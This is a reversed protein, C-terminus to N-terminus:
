SYQVQDIGSTTRWTAILAVAATLAVGLVQVSALGTVTAPQVVLIATATVACGLWVIAPMVRRAKAIDLLVTLQVLAALSGTLSFLVISATLQPAYAPGVIVGLAPAGVFAVGVACLAACGAYLWLVHRRAPGGADSEVALDPLLVTGAFQPLWYTIRMVIAGAAFLGADAISLSHRSLIVGLGLLTLVGAFSASASLLHRLLFPERSRGNVSLVHPLGILATVIAATLVGAILGTSGAVQQGALGLATRILSWGILALSFWVFRRKGQLTGLVSGVLTYAGASLALLVAPTATPANLITTILPTCVLGLVTAAAALTLAARTIGPASGTRAIRAATEAQVALGPVAAILVFTLLASDLGFDDANAVRSLLMLLVLGLANSVATAAGVALFGRGTPTPVAQPNTDSSVM